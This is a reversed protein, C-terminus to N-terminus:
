DVNVGKKFLRINILCLVISILSYTAMGFCIITKITDVGLVTKTVFLNMFDPNFLALIFLMIVCINQSIVFAIFGFVVSLGIKSNNMKHGLIIGTCGCQLINLFELFLLVLLASIFGLITSDYTNALPLLVNKFILLNEKSYYATFLILAILGFSTFLTIVATLIKSLYHTSKKVPLTHTLYSEDGFFNSRFRVWNLMLNNILISCMMSITAGSCIQAIVNLVLSNEFSFFVRAFLAFVIGLSYFIILRKFISELDYRLLNKLM